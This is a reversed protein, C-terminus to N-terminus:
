SFFNKKKFAVNKLSFKEFDLYLEECVNQLEDKITASNVEDEHGELAIFYMNVNENTCEEKMSDIDSESWTAVMAKKKKKSSSSKNSQSKKGKIKEFKIYKM